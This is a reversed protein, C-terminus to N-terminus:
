SAGMKSIQDCFELTDNTCKMAYWEGRGNKNTKKRWGNQHPFDCPSIPASRLEARLRLPPGTSGVAAVWSGGGVFTWFMLQTYLFEIKFIWSSKAFSKFAHFKLDERKKKLNAIDKPSTGYDLDESIQWSSMDINTRRWAATATYLM